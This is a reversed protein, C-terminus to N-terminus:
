GPTANISFGTVTDAVTLHVHASYHNNNTDTGSVVVTYSGTPVGSITYNGSSTTTATGITNGNSDQLTVTAGALPSSTTCASDVCANVIGSVSVTPQSSVTLTVPISLSRNLVSAQGSGSASISITGKYTNPALSATTVSVGFGGGSGTDSGSSGSVSLWSSSGSDTTITWSVPWACSGTDSLAVKQSSTAGAVLAFVLNSTNAQLSCPQVVSLSVSFTQPTGVQVGSSDTVVLSVQSSYSGAALTGVTPAVV